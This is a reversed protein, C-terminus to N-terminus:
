EKEDIFIRFCHLLMFSLSFFVRGVWRVGSSYKSSILPCGTNDINM